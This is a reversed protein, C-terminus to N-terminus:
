YTVTATVTDTYSGSTVFQGTPISGFVTFDQTSTGTGTGTNTLTSGSGDGWVVTHTGDTYLQYNLTSSGGDSMNRDTLTSGATTGADLAVAFSTGNSCQVSVTSTADDSSASGPDYNGFDLDTASITCSALVTASVTFTTSTSAANATGCILVLASTTATLGWKKWAHRTSRSRAQVDSAM